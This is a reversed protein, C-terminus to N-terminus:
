FSCTASVVLISWKLFTYKKNYVYMYIHTTLDTSRRPFSWHCHLASTVEPLLRQPLVCCPLEATHSTTKKDNLRMTISKTIMAKTKANRHIHRSYQM